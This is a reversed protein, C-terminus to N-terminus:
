EAVTLCGVCWHSDIVALDSRNENVSWYTAGSCIASGCEDCKTGEGQRERLHVYLDIAVPKGLIEVVKLPRDDRQMFRHDAM